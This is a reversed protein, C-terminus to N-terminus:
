FFSFNMNRSGTFIDCREYLNVIKAIIKVSILWMHYKVNSLM